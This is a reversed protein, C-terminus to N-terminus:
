VSSLFVFGAVAPNKYQRVARTTNRHQQTVDGIRRLIYVRRTREQSKIESNDVIGCVRAM